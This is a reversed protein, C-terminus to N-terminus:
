ESQRLSVASLAWAGEEEALPRALRWCAPPEGAGGAALILASLGSLDWSLASPPAGLSFAGLPLVEKEEYCYKWLGVRGEEDATLLLSCDEEAVAPFCAHSVRRSEHVGEGFEIFSLSAAEVFLKPTEGECVSVFVEGLGAALVRVPGKGLLLREEAFGKESSFVLALGASTGAVFKLVDRSANLFEAATFCGFEGSEESFEFLPEASKERLGFLCLRADVGASLMYPPYQVPSFAVATIPMAHCRYERLPELTGGMDAYVRVLQQADVVAKYPSFPSVFVREEGASRQAATPM